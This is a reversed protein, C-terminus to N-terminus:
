LALDSTHESVQVKVPARGTFVKDYQLMENFHPSEEHSINRPWNITAFGNELRVIHCLCEIDVFSPFNIKINATPRCGDSLELGQERM